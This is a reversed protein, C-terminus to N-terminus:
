LQWGDEPDPAELHTTGVFDEERLWYKVVMGNHQPVHLQTALSLYPTPLSVVCM